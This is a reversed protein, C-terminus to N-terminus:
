DYEENWIILQKQSRLSHFVCHLVFLFTVVKLSCNYLADVIVETTANTWEHLVVSSRLAALKRFVVTNTLILEEWITNWYDFQIFNFEYKEYIYHIIMKNINFRSKSSQVCIIENLNLLKQDPKIWLTNV